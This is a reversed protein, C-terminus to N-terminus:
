FEQRLELMGRREGAPIDFGAFGPESYHTNFVNSVALRAHTASDQAFLHLSTSSVTVDLVAASPLEYVVGNNALTNSQSSGRPGKWHLLAEANFYAEPVNVGAGVTGYIGPSQAPPSSDLAGDEISLQDFATILSHFRGVQWRLSAFTGVSKLEEANNAVFDNGVQQFVINDTVRQFYVGVDVGLPEFASNLTVEVGDVVQPVLPSVGLATLGANGLLNNANGFGGRAFMLTPSPTQFARGAIAKLVTTSTLEYAAGASWSFEAPFSREGYGIFDVRSSGMARLGPLGPIAKSTVQVGGGGSRVLESRNVDASILDTVVGTRFSEQRYYLVDENDLEGDVALRLSLMNDFLGITTTVSSTLSSYGFQPQYATDANGTLFLKYDNTPGGSAFGLDFTTSVRDSWDKHHRGHSWANDAGVRSRHSMTTNVGFEPAVELHQLGGQVMFEGASHDPSGYRVKGYISEPMSDDNQSEEDFLGDNKLYFSQDAFTPEISRGSRDLQDVSVAFMLSLDPSGRSLMASVGRGINDRQLWMRGAAVNRTDSNRQERTIVNITAIFANAGYLASLPGQVVEIREVTDMPIYELGLWATLEPRFNVPTGNIMVKVLRSGAGLGGNVGRVSLSPTIPDDVVYIGPIIALAESIALWGMREIDERTIVLTNAITLRREEGVGGGATVVEVDLLEELSMGGLDDLDIETSLTAEPDARLNGPAGLAFFLAVAPLQM